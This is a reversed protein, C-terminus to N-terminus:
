QNLIGYKDHPSFPIDDEDALGGAAHEVQTPAKVSGESATAWSTIRNYTNGNDAKESGLVCLGEKGKLTDASIVGSEYEAVQGISEYFKRVMWQMSDMFVLYTKVTRMSAGKYVDCEVVIMDNGAKSKAEEASKIVFPYEGDAWPNSGGENAQEATIPKTTFAM